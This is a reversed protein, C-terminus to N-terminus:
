VVHTARHAAMTHSLRTLDERTMRIYLAFCWSAWRGMTKIVHPPVGADALSQAGGKRFSHGSFEEPKLGAQRLARSVERLFLHRSVPNSGDLTFLPGNANLPGRGDQMAQLAAVPCTSTGNRAMRVRVGQRFVDTKSERLLLSAMDDDIRLDAVRPHASAPSRASATSRATLEGIRFLGYVAATCMAWLTRGRHSSLDFAPKLRALVSVTIPLKPLRNPGRMSRKIGQLVRELKFMGLLPNPIGHDLFASRIAYFYKKITRFSTISVKDFLYAAYFCFTPECPEFPDAQVQPLMCFRVWSDFAYAYASRTSAAM